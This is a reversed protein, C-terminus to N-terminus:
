VLSLFITAVGMGVLFGVLLESYLLDTQTKYAMELEKELEKIDKM